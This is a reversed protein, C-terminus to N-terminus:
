FFSENISGPDIDPERVMKGGEGDCFHCDPYQSVLEAIRDRIIAYVREGGNKRKTARQVANKFEKQWKEYVRKEAMVGTGLCLKCTKFSDVRM